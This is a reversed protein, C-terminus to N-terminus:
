STESQNLQAEGIVATRLLEWLKTKKLIIHRPITPVIPKKEAIVTSGSSTVAFTATLPFDWSDVNM